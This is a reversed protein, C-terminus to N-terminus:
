QSVHIIEKGSEYVEIGQQSRKVTVTIGNLTLQDQKTQVAMTAVSLVEQQHLNRAMLRRNTNIQDLILGSVLVLVAMAVLSEVLIYGRRYRSKINVM